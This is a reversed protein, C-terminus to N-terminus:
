EGCKERGSELGESNDAETSIAVVIDSADSPLSIPAALAKVLLLDVDLM